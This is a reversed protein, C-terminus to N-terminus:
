VHDITPFRGGAIPICGNLELPVMLPVGVVGPDNVLVKRTCLSFPATTVLDKVRLMLAM